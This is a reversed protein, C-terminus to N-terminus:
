SKLCTGSCSAVWKPLDSYDKEYDDWAIDCHHRFLRPWWMESHLWHRCAGDSLCVKPGRPDCGAHRVITGPM